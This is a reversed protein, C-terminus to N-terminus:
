LRLLGFSDLSHALLYIYIYIHTTKVVSEFMGRCYLFPRPGQLYQLFSLIWVCDVRPLWPSSWAQWHLWTGPRRGQYKTSIIADQRSEGTIICLRICPTAGLTCQKLLPVLISAHSSPQCGSLRAKSGEGGVSNDIYYMCGHPHAAATPQEKARHPARRCVRRFCSPFRPPKSVVDM